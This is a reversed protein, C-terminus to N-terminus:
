SMITIEALGPKEGNPIMKYVIGNIKVVVYAGKPVADFNHTALLFALDEANIRADEANLTLNVLDAYSIPSASLPAWSLMILILAVLLDAARQRVLPWRKTEVLSIM